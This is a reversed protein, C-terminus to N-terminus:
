EGTVITTIKTTFLGSATKQDVTSIKTIGGNEAAKKISVDINGLPMVGFLYTGTAEGVKSGVENSTACVPVTTACSTFLFALGALLGLRSKKM